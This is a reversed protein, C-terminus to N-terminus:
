DTIYLGYSQSIKSVGNNEPLEGLNVPTSLSSVSWVFDLNKKQYISIVESITSQVNEDTLRVCSVRNAMHFPDNSFIARYNDAPFYDILGDIHSWLADSQEIAEIIQSLDITGM